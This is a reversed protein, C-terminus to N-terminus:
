ITDTMHNTLSVQDVVSGINKTFHDKIFDYRTHRSSQNWILAQYADEPKVEPESFFLKWNKNQTFFKQRIFQEQRQYKSITATYVPIDEATSFLSSM